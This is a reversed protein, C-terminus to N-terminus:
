FNLFQTYTGPNVYDYWNTPSQWNQAANSVVAAPPYITSVANQLQQFNTPAQYTSGGGGGGGALNGFVQGLQALSAAQNQANLNGQQVGGWYNRNAAAAAPQLGQVFALANNIGQQQYGINQGQLDMSLNQNDRMLQDERNTLWQGLALQQNYLNQDQGIDFQKQGTLMNAWWQRLAENNQDQAQLGQLAQAEYQRNQNERALATQAEQGLMTAAQANGSRQALARSIARDAEGGLMTAGTQLLGKNRYRDERAAEAGRLGVDRAVESARTLYDRTVSGPQNGFKESTLFSGGRLGRRNFDADAKDLALGFAEKLPDIGQAALDKLYDASYGEPAPQSMSRIMGLREAETADEPLAAQLTRILNAREAATADPSLARGLENIAATRDTLPQYQGFMGTIYQPDPSDPLVIQAPTEATNGGTWGQANQGTLPQTVPAAAPQASASPTRPSVMINGNGIYQVNSDPYSTMYSSVYDWGNSEPVKVIFPSTTDAMGLKHSQWIPIDGQWGDAASNQGRQRVPVQQAPAASAQTTPTASLLKQQVAPPLFSFGPMIQSLNTPQTAPQNDYAWFGSGPQTSQQEPNFTSGQSTAQPSIGFSGPTYSLRKQGSGISVKSQTFPNSTIKPPNTMWGKVYPKLEGMIESQDATMVPANAAVSSGSDSKKTAGIIAGVGSLIPGVSGGM